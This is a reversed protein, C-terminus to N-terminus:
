PQAPTQIRENTDVSFLMFDHFSHRHHYRRGRLQLYLDASAPLWLKVNSKDFAVPQYEIILHQRQLKIKKIPAVMDMALRLIHYNNAGIWARGKLKIPFRGKSSRYIYIRAERDERQRFYVQWVPQGQWQGLGECSMTFDQVYYPHFILALAALGTSWTPFSTVAAGGKRFEQVVFGGTPLERLFVLYDLAQAQTFQVNGYENLQAYEIHETATFQELNEVLAAVQRGAAALVNPLSCSIDPVVPPVLEDVDPPAWRQVPLRPAFATPLAGSDPALVPTSDPNRARGSRARTTSPPSDARQARLRALFRRARAALQHQPHRHLFAEIEQAAKEREGLAALAQALLLQAAQAKDKGRELALAAHTRAKAFERQLYCARALTWHTQWFHPALVLARELAPIAAPLDRQQFLLAGLAAFAYAHNPDQTAKQLHTKAQAVDNLRLYLAGMLYNVDPHGPALKFARRLRKKAKKLDNKQLAKLGKALEKRAKPALLLLGPPNPTTKAAAEPRLFIFVYSLPGLLTAEEHVTQFGLAKAEVRYNGVPIGSFTAEGGQRTYETLRVSNFDSYLRVLAASILPRGSADRVRVVLTGITDSTTPGTTPTRSPQTPQPRQQAEAGVAFVFLLFVVAVNLARM